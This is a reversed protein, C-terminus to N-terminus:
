HAIKRQTGDALQIIQFKRGMSWKRNNTYRPPTRLKPLVDERNLIPSDPHRLPEKIEKASDSEKFWGFLYRLILKIIRM